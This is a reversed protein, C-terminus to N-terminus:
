QVRTAKAIMDADRNRCEDCWRCTENEFDPSLICDWFITGGGQCETNDCHLVKDEEVTDVCEWRGEQSANRLADDDLEQFQTIAKAEAEVSDEAEVNMYYTYEKVFCVEFKKM